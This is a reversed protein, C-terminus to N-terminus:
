IGTEEFAKQWCKLQEQIGKSTSIGRLRLIYRVATCKEYRFQNYVEQDFVLMQRDMDFIRVFYSRRANDKVFAAVGCSRKSWRLHGPGESQYIQFPPYIFYPQFVFANYLLTCYFFICMSVDFRRTPLVHLLFSM